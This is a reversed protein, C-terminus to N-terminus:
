DCKKQRDGGDGALLNQFRAFRSRLEGALREVSGNVVEILQVSLHHDQGEPGRTTGDAVALYRIEIADRFAVFTFVHDEKGHRHVVFGLNMRVDFSIREIEVDQRVAEAYHKFVGVLISGAVDIHSKWRMKKNAAFSRDRQSGIAPVFSGVEIRLYRPEEGGFLREQPIFSRERTGASYKV